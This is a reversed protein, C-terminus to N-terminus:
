YILKHKYMIMYLIFLDARSRNAMCYTSVNRTFIYRFHSFSRYPTIEESQTIDLLRICLRFITANMKAFFHPIGRLYRPNYARAIDAISQGAWGTGRMPNEQRKWQRSRETESDEASGHMRKENLSFSLLESRSRKSGPRANERSMTSTRGDSFIENPYEDPSRPATEGATAIRSSGRIKRIRYQHGRLIGCFECLARVM